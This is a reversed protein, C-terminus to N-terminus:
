KLENLHAIIEKVLAEKSNASFEKETLTEGCRLKLQLKITTGNVTYGGSIKCANPYSSADFFVLTSETGRSSVLSLENNVLNSLDLNDEMEETNIFTSRVFVRKPEALPILAKDETELMGIDFSGSKPQLLQPKQIGGIGRALEPVTEAAHNLITFVDVYKDEKLAAGKMAQLIAFTLLGQGYQSAEYSVADAACGSILFMGTRDKMRDIAKIQSPEVNRNAILNDVAKGSGCADIIMVQKLAPVGKIWETLERTSVAVKERIVPDSYADSSASFADTTLYYFDGFDGGWTVGHGSLYIVLIDEPKAKQSIEEFVARINAKTPKNKGPSTLTYIHTKEAGFLKHAGLQLALALSQADPEAYRLNMSKQSYENVGCIVAYLAPPATNEKEESLYVTTVGRGEVFGDESWAKVTITNEKGPIILPHNKLDVSLEVAALASDIVQDGRADAEVEKGNIFVSVRGYGGDRKKLVIPLQHDDITKLEVDPASKLENMGRVDRLTENNMVKEWLGPEWYRDKLQAFDIVELGKTWYMLEMAEPSADFLGSPHLHVWKTPDDDFVYLRIKQEYKETSYIITSGDSSSTIILQEDSSFSVSTVSNSHDEFSHILEGTKLDFLKVRGSSFGILIKSDDKSFKASKAFEFIEGFTYILRKSELDFIKISRNDSSLASLYKGLHSFNFFEFDDSNNEFTHSIKGDLVNIIDIDGRFNAILNKSDKSFQVSGPDPIWREINVKLEGTIADFIKSKSNDSTFILKGDPSYHVKTILKEHGRLTQVIEGTEVNFIKATTDLCSLVVHKNDSSFQKTDGSYSMFAPITHLLKGTSTKIISVKKERNEGVILYNFDNSIRGNIRRYRWGNEKLKQMSEYLNKYDGSFINVKYINDHYFKPEFNSDYLYSLIYKGDPSIDLSNEPISHDITYKLKGTQIKYFNYRSSSGCFFNNDPCFRVVQFSTIKRTLTSVPAKNILDYVMINYSDYEFAILNGDKNYELGFTNGENKLTLIHEKKSLDYIKVEYNDSSVSLLLSTPSFEVNLIEHQINFDTVDLNDSKLNIVKLITDGEVTAIFSEDYSFSTKREWNEFYELRKLLRGNELDYLKLIRDGKEWDEFLLYHDEASFLTSYDSIKNVGDLSRVARGSELDFFLSINDSSALISNSNPLFKILNLSGNENRLTKLLKGTELDYVQIARDKAESAILKNDQSIVPRSFESQGHLTYLIKGTVLSYVDINENFRAVSLYQNNSSIEINDITGIEKELRCILQGSIINYFEPIKGKTFTLAYKKDPSQITKSDYSDDFIMSELLKGSDVEFLKIKNGHNTILIKSDKTFSYSEIHDSNGIPLGLKVEQGRATCWIMLFMWITRMASKYKGVKGVCFRGM